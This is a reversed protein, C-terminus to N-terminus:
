PQPLRALHARLEAVIKENGPDKAANRTEHPDKELDMLQERSAGEDYLIYKYRM